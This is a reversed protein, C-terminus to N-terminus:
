ECYERSQMRVFTEALVADSGELADRVDDRATLNGPLTEVNLAFLRHEYVNGCAGSGFYDAGTIGSQKAGAPSTLPSGAPLDAPLTTTAAPIDWLAWHTFGNTLDVLLIAFSLTGEPAGSISM